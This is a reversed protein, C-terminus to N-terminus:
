NEVSFACPKILLTEKIQDLLCMQVDEGGSLYREEIWSMYVVLPVNVCYHVFVNEHFKFLM